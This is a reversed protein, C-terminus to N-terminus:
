KVKISKMLNDLNKLVGADVVYGKIKVFNLIDYIMNKTRDDIEVGDKEYTEIQSIFKKVDKEVNKKIDSSISSEIIEEQHKVTEMTNFGEDVFDNGNWKLTYAKNKSSWYINDEGPKLFYGSEADFEADKPSGQAKREKEIEDKNHKIQRKSAKAKQRENVYQLGELIGSIRNNIM